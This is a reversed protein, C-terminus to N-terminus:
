TNTNDFNNIPNESNHVFMAQYFECNSYCLGGIIDGGKSLEENVRTELVDPTNGSIIKYVRTLMKACKLRRNKNLYTNVISLVSDVLFNPNMQDENTVPIHQYYGDGLNEREAKFYVLKIEEDSLKFINNVSNCYGVFNLSM